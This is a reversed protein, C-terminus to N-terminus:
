RDAPLLSDSAGSRRDTGLHKDMLQRSLITLGTWRPDMRGDEIQDAFDQIEHHLTAQPSNPGSFLVEPVGGRPHFIISQPEAPDDIVISGDEGVIISPIESHAIKSWALDAHMDAYQLYMGGAGEFGNRLTISVGSTMLPPGFWDLVPQLCYVGIDALASNGSSPNFADPVEGARFSDYRSSYQLKQIRVQRVTGLRAIASSILAHQPIHVNRVAEMAVVGKGEAASLIEEVQDTDIGLTKEVLVHKGAAIVELAQRHHAVMPSAIYVADVQEVLRRIDHHAFPIGHWKAFLQARASDRSHIAAVTARGDTQACANIFWESILGTGVVGFQLM